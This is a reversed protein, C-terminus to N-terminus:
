LPLTASTISTFLTDRHLRALITNKGGMDSTQGPRGFQAPEEDGLVLALGVVLCLELPQGALGNEVDDAALGLRADVDDIVALHRLRTVRGIDGVPQGPKGA